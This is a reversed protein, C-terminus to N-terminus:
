RLNMRWAVQLAAVLLALVLAMLWESRGDTQRRARVLWVVVYAGTLVYFLLLGLAAVRDLRLGFMVGWVMACVLAAVFVVRALWGGVDHAQQRDGM